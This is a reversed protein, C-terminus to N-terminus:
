KVILENARMDYRVERRDNSIADIVTDVLLGPDAGEPLKPPSGALAHEAFGTEMHGPSVELVTALDKRRERRLAALYAALAAKSASYAAMGATPFTAVVATLAIVSGGPSLHDLGASILAMPGTANILMLEREVAPDIEGAAGFAVAGTAIVIGDLGGLGEVALAVAREASGAESYDLPVPVAGLDASIRELAEPDRGAAAVTGGADTLARAILNGLFGTAGAVLFRSGAIEM